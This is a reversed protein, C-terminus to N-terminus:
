FSITQEKSGRPPEMRCGGVGRFSPQGPTRSEGNAQIHYRSGTRPYVDLVDLMRRCGAGLVWCASRELADPVGPRRVGLGGGGGAESKLRQTWREDGMPLWARGECGNNHGLLLDLKGVSTSTYKVHQKSVRNACSLPGSAHGTDSSKERLSQEASTQSQDWTRM